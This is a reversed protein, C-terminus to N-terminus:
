QITSVVGDRDWVLLATGPQRAIVERAVKSGGVVAMKTLVEARWGSPAIASAAVVDSRKLSQGTMPDLIHHAIDGSENRWRRKLTGSSCVSGDRLVVNMPQDDRGIPDEIGIRWGEDPWLGGVSVDGGLSVMAGAAGSRLLEAVVVDAGLGKGIGGSDFELGPALWALRRNRMFQLPTVFDAVDSDAVAFSAAGGSDGPVADLESFDRDYGVSRIQAGMFPNFIGDSLRYGALGRWLLLSLDQSVAMWHGPRRNFASLESNDDFRTWASELERVRIEGFRVLDPSGGLVLVQCDCGMAEFQL